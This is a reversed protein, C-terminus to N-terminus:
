PSTQLARVASDAQRNVDGRREVWMFQNVRNVADVQRLIRMREEPSVTSRQASDFTRSIRVLVAHHLSDAVEIESRRWEEILYRQISARTARTTDAGTTPEPGAPLSPPLAQTRVPLRATDRSSPHPARRALLQAGDTRQQADQWERPTTRSLSGTCGLWCRPSMSTTDPGDITAAGTAGRPWATVTASRSATDAGQSEAQSAGVLLVGVVVRNIRM